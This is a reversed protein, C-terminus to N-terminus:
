VFSLVEHIGVYYLYDYCVLHEDPNVVTGHIPSPLVDERLNLNRDRSFALRALAWFSSGKDHEYNPLMKIWDPAKTYAIDTIM